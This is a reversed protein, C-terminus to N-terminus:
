FITVNQNLHSSSSLNTNDPTQRQPLKEITSTPTYDNQKRQQHQQQPPPNGISVNTTKNFGNINVNNLLKKVGINMTSNGDMNM